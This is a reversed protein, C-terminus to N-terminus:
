LILLLAAALPTVIIGIKLLKQPARKTLKAGIYSGTMTGVLVTVLLQINLSGAWFYGAGGAAAIPLIILMSTGAAMRMPLGLLLMLGLQIFPTAGIGFTGSLFGTIAGLAIVSVFYRISKKNLQSVSESALVLRLFLAISSLALMSATLWTIISEPINIAIGAGFWAAIAGTIGVIGGSILDANKERIHSVAGSLSTFMMAALATGMAMHIPYGFGVTLIAIMFGSGGAGIFGLLLGTLFMVFILEFTLLVEM